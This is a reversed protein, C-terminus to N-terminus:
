LAVFSLAVFQRIVSSGERINEITMTARSWVLGPDRKARGLPRYSSLGQSRPQLLDAMGEAFYKVQHYILGSSDRQQTAFRMCMNCVDRKLWVCTRTAEFLIEREQRFPLIYMIVKNFGNGTSIIKNFRNGTRTTNFISRSVSENVRENM